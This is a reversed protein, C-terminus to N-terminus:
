TEHARLHTYSVSFTCFPFVCKMRNFIHAHNDSFFIAFGRKPPERCTDTIKPNYLKRWLAWKPDARNYGFDNQPTYRNYNDYRILPSQGTLRDSWQPKHKWASSKISDQKIMSKYFIIGTHPPQFPCRWFITAYVFFSIDRGQSYYVSCTKEPPCVEGGVLLAVANNVKQYLGLCDFVQTNGKSLAILDITSEKM